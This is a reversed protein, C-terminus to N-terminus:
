PNIFRRLRAVGEELNPLSTTYAFRLHAEPRNFGFDRGPTVAVGAEELLAEAFAYSDDTVTECNAYLYFAGQPTVPLEFGMERLAPLLFDRRQLCEVRRAELIELVEPEFAKLAAHQSLTPAALFINQALRDLPDVAAEPAVLWGLRWGTMGFFKSFSNVVFIDDAISLATGGVADYILGQYIEDVILLGGLRSVTDHLATLEELTLLTGTPNAPTAVLVAKTDPRWAMEVIEATLQYGTDAGVPVGVPKGDVLEVFHRNCPYGPDAMLVSEGPNILVSMVLQLAGSAGPTVIIRAPDIDVGYSSAYFGAIAERLAPLGKAPTYHTEGAALAAEGAHIIPAPTIFDPEGIEMHIITRGEAELSRAKALLDMVYFPKIRAMRDAISIM